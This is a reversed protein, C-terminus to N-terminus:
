SEDKAHQSKSDCKTCTADLLIIFRPATLAILHIRQIWLRGGGDM